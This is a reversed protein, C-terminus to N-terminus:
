PTYSDHPGSAEASLTMRKLQQIRVTRDHCTAALVNFHAAAKPRCPM